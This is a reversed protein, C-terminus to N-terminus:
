RWVSVSEDCQQGGVAGAGGGGGAGAAEARRITMALGTGFKLVPAEEIEAKPVTEPPDPVSRTVQALSRPPDPAAEPFAFQVMGHSGRDTPALWIVTVTLSPAPLVADFVTRTVRAVSVSETAGVTCIREGPDISSEVEAPLILRLPVADSLTPTAATRQDLVKPPAPTALPVAEQCSGFI